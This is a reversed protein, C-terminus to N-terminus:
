RLLMVGFRFQSRLKRNYDLLSEGYGNFYQALLYGDINGFGIRTLPYSLDVQVSGKDGDSGLRLTTALQWSDTKQLAIYLDGYGRFEDIDPNEEKDLYAWVGPAAVLHYDQRNGFTFVPRAYLIDISRSQDGDRGNSEHGYGAELGLRLRDGASRWLGEKFYFLRPKYSTDRFPKSERELDWLSTQAYGLYIDEIGPLLRALDRDPRVFRYKFSLQFKANENGRTGYIFYLPEYPSILAFPAPQPPSPEAQRIEGTVGKTVPAPEPAPRVALLIRNATLGDLALTVMGDLSPPLTGTYAVRVFSQPALQVAPVDRAERAKLEMPSSSSGASLRASIVKPVTVTRPTNSENKFYLELTMTTGAVVPEAPAIVLVDASAVGAAYLLVAAAMTSSCRSM